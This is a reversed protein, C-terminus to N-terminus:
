GTRLDLGIFELAKKAKYLGKLKLRSMTLLQQQKLSLHELDIKQQYFLATKIDNEMRATIAISFRNLDLYKELGQIKMDNYVDIDFINRKKVAVKDSRSSTSKDIYVTKKIDFAVTTHIALRIFFDTDEGHTYNENYWEINKLVSVRVAYSSSTLISNLYNKEFFAEIIGAQHDELNSFRTDIITSSSKKILYNTAAVGAAPHNGFLELITSLHNEKWYDDADIFTLFEYQQEIAHNIGANRAASVGANKQHLVTIRSDNFHEITSISNDTSGDNVVLIHFEQYDQQLVSNITRVITEEKNFLPIVVLLNSM